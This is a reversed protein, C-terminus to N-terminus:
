RRGELKAIREGHDDSKSELKGIRLDHGSVKETLRGYVFVGVLASVAVGAWAGLATLQAVNM